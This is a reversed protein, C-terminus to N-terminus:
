CKKYPLYRPVWYMDEILQKLDSNQNKQAYGSDIACQAVAIAIEKAVTQADDLSPLLPLFSDKKSPAFECLVQAAALIMEKTLRSASVALVGLGIGPFVIVNQRSGSDPEWSRAYNFVMNTKDPYAKGQNLDFTFLMKGGAGILRTQPAQYKSEKLTLLNKDFSVVSWQYGTTPNAPLTVTFSSQDKNVNMSIDDGAHVSYSCCLLICGLIKNM